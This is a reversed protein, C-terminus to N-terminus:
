KFWTWPKFLERKTMSRNNIIAGVLLMPLLSSIHLVGRAAGGRGSAAAADYDVALYLESMYVGNTGLNTRVGFQRADIEASSWPNSTEPNTSWNAGSDHDTFSTSAIAISTGQQTDPTASRVIPYLSGSTAGYRLRFNITVSNITKGSSDTGDTIEFSQYQYNTDEYVWDSDDLANVCEWRNGASAAWSNYVGDATPRLPTEVAM